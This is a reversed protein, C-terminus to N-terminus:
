PLLEEADGIDVSLTATVKRIRPKGDGGYEKQLDKCWSLFDEMTGFEEIYKICDEHSHFEPTKSLIEEKNEIYKVDPWEECPRYFITRSACYAGEQEYCTLYLNPAVEIVFLTRKHTEPLLNKM